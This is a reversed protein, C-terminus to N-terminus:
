ASRPPRPASGIALLGLPLLLGREHHAIAGDIVAKTVLPIAIDAAEVVLAAAIMVILQNRYPRLYPRLRWLAAVPSQSVIHLRIPPKGTDGPKKRQVHGIDSGTAFQRAAALESATLVSTAVPSARTMAPATPSSYASARDAAESATGPLLSASLLFM